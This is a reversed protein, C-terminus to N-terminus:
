NAGRGQPEQTAQERWEALLIKAIGPPLVPSVLGIKTEQDIKLMLM